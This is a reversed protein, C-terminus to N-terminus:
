CSYPSAPSCSRIARIPFFSSTHRPNAESPLSMQLLKAYEDEAAKYISVAPDADKWLRLFQKYHTLARVRAADAVAGNSKKSQAVNARALGLHALAGTSCNWVMGPHDIIKQFESAAEAAQGSALYAETKIYTPYLCSPNNVFFIAGFELPSEVTQLLRLAEAPNKGNLALQARIAPLWLSQAQTDLPYRKDLGDAMSKARGNDLDLVIAHALAAEVVAGQSDPALKIGEAADNSAESTNGTLAERSAANERWIAANEKSDAAIAAEVSRKTLERAALLRGEYAGTDSALSLGYHKADPQM